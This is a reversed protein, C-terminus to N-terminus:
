DFLYRSAIPVQLAHLEKVTSVQRMEVGLLKVLARNERHSVPRAHAITANVGLSRCIRQHALASGIADPDPHGSLLILLHEGAAKQLAQQLALHPALNEM